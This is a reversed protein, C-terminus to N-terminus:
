FKIAVDVQILTILVFIRRQMDSNVCALQFVDFDQEFSACGESNSAISAHRHRGCDADACHTSMLLKSVLANRQKVFMTSVQSDPVVGHV